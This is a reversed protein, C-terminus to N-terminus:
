TRVKPGLEFFQIEVVLPMVYPLQFKISIRWEFLWLDILFIFGTVIMQFICGEVWLLKTLIYPM